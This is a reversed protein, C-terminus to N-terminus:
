VNAVDKRGKRALLRLIRQTALRTGSRLVSIYPIAISGDYYLSTAIKSRDFSRRRWMDALWAEALLDQLGGLDNTEIAYQVRAQLYRVHGRGNGLSKVLNGAHSRFFTLTRSSRAVFRYKGATRLLTILDCGGGHDPFDRISPSPIDVAIADLLDATRLLVGCPSIPVDGHRLARGIYDPAPILTRCSRWRLLDSGKWPADGVTVGTYAFGVQTIGILPLTEELFRPSLLDDSFLIVAFHGKAREACLKWNRTPGVNVPNVFYQVRHDGSALSRCVEGTGDSSANDSIVVEFDSFTQALASKVSEQVYKERNYVPILISVKPQM